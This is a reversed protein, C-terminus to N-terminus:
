NEDVLEIIHNNDVADTIHDILKIADELYDRDCAWEGVDLYAAENEQMAKNIDSLINLVEILNEVEKHELIVKASQKNMVKM